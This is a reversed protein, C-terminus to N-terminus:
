WWGCASSQRKYVDLHTYSVASFFDYPDAHRGYGMLFTNTGFLVTARREPLPAPAFGVAPSVTM